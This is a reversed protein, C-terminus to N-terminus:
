SGPQTRADYASKAITGPFAAEIRDATGGVSFGQFTGDKVLPWAWDEWLVGMFPTGAPYTHKRLIGPEVEVPVSVPFPITALEVWRGAIVDDLHQAHIERNGSDVYKWLSEQVTDRDAWEGHADVSDPVYWAGYSYQKEDDLMQSSKTMIVPYYMNPSPTAVDIPGYGYDDIPAELDIEYELGGIYVTLNDIVIKDPSALVQPTEADAGIYALTVHPTFNPWSDEWEIGADRLAASLTDHLETLGPAQVGLYIATQDDSNPTLFRGFGTIQGDLAPQMVACQQVVGIITRQQETTFDAAHGLYLVTLHIDDEDHGGPVAYRERQWSRPKWAIMLGQPRVVYLDQLGDDDGDTDVTVIEVSELGLSRAAEVALTFDSDAFEASVELAKAITVHRRITRREGVATMEEAGELDASAL